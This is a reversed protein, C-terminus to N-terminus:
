LRFARYRTSSAQLGPAGPYAARVRWRGLRHTSLSKAFRGAATVRTKLTLTDRWRGDVRRQLRLLVRGTNANAVSGVLKFRRSAIVRQATDATSATRARVARRAGRRVRVRTWTQKSTSQSSSPLAAGSAPAPPQGGYVCGGAGPSYDKFTSYAPKPSFDVRMLGLRDDWTDANNAWFNNRLNYWLAVEVYPDQELCRYARTLYDAQTAEDVGEGPRTTTSWGFETFWIPKDDGHALMTARVERYGSFVGASLRTGDNWTAEPPAAGLTYPHTAMADFYRGLDPMAAYAREVYGYDNYQLGGFLVKASSDAAKIAPYSAKLLQAYAAPDPGSPWFRVFNQENWVEYAEAQGRYRTALFSMFLAYDNPDQPAAYGDSSGSAWEPSGVVMILVRSGAARSKSVAYDVESLYSSDYVGRRPQTESWSVALRVWRSGIQSLSSAQRDVASKGAGWTFDTVVGKEAAQSVAPFAGLLLVLLLSALLGRPRPKSVNPYPSRRNPPNLM